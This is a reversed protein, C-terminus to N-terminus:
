FGLFDINKQWFDVAHVSRQLFQCVSTAVNNIDIAPTWSRLLRDFQARFFFCNRARTLKIGTGLLGRVTARQM